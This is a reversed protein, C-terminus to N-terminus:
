CDEEHRREPLGEESRQTEDVGFYLVGVCGDVGGSRHPGAPHDQPDGRGAPLPRLRRRGRDGPYAHHKDRARGREQDSRYCFRSGTQRSFLSTLSYSM